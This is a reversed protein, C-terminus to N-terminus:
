RHALAFFFKSVGAREKLKEKKGEREKKEHERASRKTGGGGGGGMWINQPSQDDLFNIKKLFPARFNRQSYESLDRLHFFFDVADDVALARHDVDVRVSPSSEQQHGGSSIADSQM